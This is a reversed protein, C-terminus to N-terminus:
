KEKINRNGTGKLKRIVGGKHQETAQANLGLNPEGVKIGRGGKKGQRGYRVM